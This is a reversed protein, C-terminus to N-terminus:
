DFEIASTIKLMNFSLSYLWRLQEWVLHAEQFDRVQLTNIAGMLPTNEAQFVELQELFFSDDQAGILIKEKPKEKLSQLVLALNQDIKAIAANFAMSASTTPHFQIYSSLSALASLFTHNLEVLEYIEPLNIQKSKPEQAMRQFASSLNSTELFAEKRSVKYTIPVQGKQQYYHAIQGLFNKNACVSTEINRSIELFGWAPWLWRMAMYSLAAGIATDGIRFQIVNLIDPRTIAYIFVVSLTVFTASAKYNRQVMSFAIVLSVVGLAAYAYPHRVLFVLGLALFAGILTGIIRDKSRTKTLGYGPRMIVIITLLIWYPTQSDFWAGVTYGVMLTVALRLSHKFINSRLSFNRVLIAPDYDQSVIFLRSVSKDVPEEGELDPNGLLWKIKKIKVFQKEQYEFLNKLMAYAAYDVGNANQGYESIESKVQEFCETLKNNKPLKKTDGGANAIGRLQSVMELIIKQFSRVYKPNEIFLADMKDYNVPNATATELMEVLQVFILLRRGEFNSKGSKQRSLMLIERLTAHHEILKIQIDHLRTQLTKRDNNPDVLKSRIELFDATLLYTDSLIEETQAKRSLRHWVMTLLLYWLGGVGVLLSYQWIELNQVDYAFSLVLALLGSFSILSARFGYVSIFAIAFTFIGIIPLSIWAEYHLYGGVLSVIMVLAASFLIGIKKHRFSGSVDSPSCWFAGFCLALGIEFHGLYLGILIPTTIAFGIM